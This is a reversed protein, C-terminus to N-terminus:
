VAGVVRGFGALTVMVAVLWAAGVFLADAVTVNVSLRCTVMDGPLTDIEAPLACAKVAATEPAPFKDVPTVQDTFLVLPPFEITPVM